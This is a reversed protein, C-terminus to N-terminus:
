KSTKKTPKSSSHHGYTNNPRLSTLYPHRYNDDDDDEHRIGGGYSPHRYINSDTPTSPIMGRHNYNPPYPSWGANGNGSPSPPWGMTSGGNPYNRNSSPDILGTEASEGDATPTEIVSTSNQQLLPTSKQLPPIVPTSPHTDKECCVKFVVKMNNTSCRGGIRRHLDDKSSTALLYYLFWLNIVNEILIPICLFLFKILICETLKCIFYYDQGPLFELGGPQPTFPRFTITIFMLNQPKDCIAIIRPNANTIRCTEYEVKSVNYIIYKETENEFTGAEYVPCILHVQDYEFELNGKNM